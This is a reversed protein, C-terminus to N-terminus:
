MIAKSIALFGISSILIQAISLVDGDWRLITTMCCMNVRVYIFYIDKPIKKGGIYKKKPFAM